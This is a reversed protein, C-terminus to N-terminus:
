ELSILIGVATVIVLVAAVAAWRWDRELVLVAFSVIVGLFPSLILVLIGAYLLTESGDVAYMALGCVLLVMGIVIGIRLMLATSRNLDPNM